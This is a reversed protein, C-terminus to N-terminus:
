SFPPREHRGAGSVVRERHGPGLEVLDGIQDAQVGAGTLEQATGHPLVVEGDGHAHVVAATLTKWPNRMWCLSARPGQWPRCGSGGGPSRRCPGRGTWTSSRSTRRPRCGGRRRCPRRSRRGAGGRPGSCSRDAAAVHALHGAVHARDEVHGGGVDHGAGACARSSPRTRPWRVAAVIGAHDGALGHAHAARQAAGLGGAVAHDVAQALGQALQSRSGAAVVALTCPKPLTAWYAM